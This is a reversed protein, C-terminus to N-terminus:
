LTGPKLQRWREAIEAGMVYSARSDGQVWTAEFPWEARGFSSKCYKTFAALQAAIRRQTLKSEREVNRISVPEGPQSSTLNLITSVVPFRELDPVLRALREGLWWQRKAEQTGPELYEAPLNGVENPTGATGPRLAQALASYVAALAQRPVPVLVIEDETAPQM